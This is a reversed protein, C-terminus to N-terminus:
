KSSNIEKIEELSHSFNKKNSFAVYKLGVCPTMDGDVVDTDVFRFSKLSDFKKIFRISPIIGGFDFALTHLHHLKTVYEYNKISKCKSFILSTLTEKSRELCCLTELKVCYHFELEELQNFKSFEKLDPISSNSIKLKKVWSVDSICSYDKGKPNYYYISLSKLQECNQMNSFFSSWDAILTVLFPFYSFDIKRNKGAIIASELNSLAYLGKIDNIEESLSIHKIEPYNILFDINQLNYGHSKTIAVGDLNNEKYVKMCKEIAGSDIIVSKKGNTYVKCGDILEISM